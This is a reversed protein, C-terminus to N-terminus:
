VASTPGVRASMVPPARRAIADRLALYEGINDISLLGVLRDGDLVPILSTEGGAAAVRMLVQEL